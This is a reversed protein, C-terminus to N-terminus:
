KIILPETGKVYYLIKKKKSNENVIEGTIPDVLVGVVNNPKEYWNSEKDKLYSEIVDVWIQRSFGRDDKTIMQNRDYGTWVGFLLDKNYGIAWTDYDTSGSKLAYKKTIKPAISICTPYTYDVMTYDYSTTLLENIIFTINKNLVNIKNSKHEYLINGRMDEIKEILYLEIKDGENALTNYGTLFDIINIEETGLPLSPHPEVKEVIGVRNVIDVLTDEGLFLHTKIAYINDSFSLAAAMSIPKSPYINAYNSPSYTKNDSFTFTTPESLFTTSATFGNELAAYYLFPKMTSGVQRRSDTARNFQSKVYDRGGTLAIIKGTSPEVVVAAVQIDQNNKLNNNISEELITQANLDLNTYIKLGNTKILSDPITGIKKLEKMVADQYYMLTTLNLKEKKGYYILKENFTIEKEEESIYKNKVMSTLILHQRKKAELEDNLPSNATPSKPIGALMAAEALTLDSASKNFYYRAANEIGLVGNGYNITNLYGELIEDKSYNVEIEFALWAEELKRQWSKEFGLYLNRAYQQTITSAGQVIKKSKFNEWLSKIIRLYDFGFHNYFRKDEISITANIIHPSIQELSIWENHGSGQFFINNDKDYLFVNNINKIDIKPLTKAYIFAGLHVFIFSFALLSTIKLIIKIFKM